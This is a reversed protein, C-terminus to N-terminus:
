DSGFDDLDLSDLFDRFASLDEEAIAGKGEAELIGEEPVIGAQEMVGDAVFVPAKVRVALSIADSPRSDVEVKQGNVDIIITAFFTDDRLDNVLVHSVRAGMADIVSKLLDHTQPRPVTKGLLEITISDAEYSGIWIPLYRDQDIDRLIVMRHPSILSARVSDVVVETM